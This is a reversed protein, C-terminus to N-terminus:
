QKIFCKTIRKQDKGNNIVIYFIGKQLSSIDLTISENLVYSESKILKGDISFIQIEIKSNSIKKNQVTLFDNAPNPFIKYDSVTEENNVDISTSFEDLVIIKIEKDLSCGFQNTAKVFIPVTINYDVVFYGNNTYLSKGNIYFYQSYPNSIEDSFSYSHYSLPDPDYTIFEGIFTYPPKKEYVKDNTLQLDHPPYKRVYQFEYAGIDILKDHIRPNNIIDKEPINSADNLGKNICPSCRTISWDAQFANASFGVDAIPNYFYPLSDINNIFKEEPLNFKNGENIDSHDITVISKNGFKLQNLGTNGMNGWLITNQILLTDAINYEDSYVGGSYIPSSFNFHGANNTITSNIISYNSQTSFIGGVKYGSNNAILCNVIKSFSKILYISSVQNCYNNIIKNNILLPRSEEFYIAAGNNDSINSNIISNTIKVNSNSCFIGGGIGDSKNSIIESDFIKVDSRFCYIGGGSKYASNDKIVMNKFTIDSFRCKIGGGDGTYLAESANGKEITFGDLVSTSDLGECFVVHYSNDTKNGTIGIDGSLITINQKWNRDERKAESGDFGGYIEIHKKLKFTANKHDDLGLTDPLYTGKAVWIERKKYCEMSFDIAKQINNTADNWSQGNGKGDPKVYIIQIGSLSTIQGNYEYPGIDIIDSYIRENQNIDMNPIIFSLNSTTGKNICPSCSSISWDAILGDQSAGVVFFPNKFRPYEDINNLYNNNTIGYKNGGEINCNTVKINLNGDGFFHNLGSVGYNNWMITNIIDPFSNSNCYIGAGKNLSSNNAILSNVIFPSSNSCYIGGGNNCYNNTIITNIIEPKSNNLYFGAGNNFSKNNIIKCSQIIPSSNYLYAGAGEEAINNYLNTNLISPDSFNLYIGGGSCSRNNQILANRIITKSHYLYIGAGDCNASNSNFASGDSICLGDIVSTSDLYTAKVVSYSRGLYSDTKGFNGSLISVNSKYDRQEVKTENGIFGGYIAVNNRLVFSAKRKDALGDTDPYYTGKALWIDVGDYCGLPNNIAGQLNGMADSWSSGGGTGGEKVFLIKRGNTPVKNEQVEFAGIDITGNYIRSQKNLDYILSDPLLNNNGGNVCPSCSIINWNAILAKANFGIADIPNIFKPDTSISNIYLSDPINLQKGNRIDSNIIKPYGSSFTIEKNEFGSNNWLISNKIIPKASWCYVGGYDRNNVITSNVIIPNCSTIYIGGNNNAILTNAITINSSTLDVGRSNNNQIKSSNIFGKCERLWIAESSYYNNIVDCDQIILNSKQIYMASGFPSTNHIFSSNQIIANSNQIFLAGGYFQSSNNCFKCNAIKIDAFNAFVAGGDDGIDNFSLKCNSIRLKNFKNIEIVGTLTYQPNASKFNSIKCYDFISSDSAIWMSDFRIGQLGSNINTSKFTISDISNGIAKIKGNEKVYVKFQNQFEIYTGPRVILEGNQRITIDGTIKITDSWEEHTSIIGSKNVTQATLHINTSLSFLFILFKLNKM